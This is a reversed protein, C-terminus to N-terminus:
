LRTLYPAFGPSWATVADHTILYAEYGPRTGIWELGEIGMVFVATAYADARGLDNGVVTASALETSPKGTRPDFIHAGREYTASTAVGLPGTAEIVLALADPLDPHRIGIRWPRNESIEGRIVIDGGGNICFNHCGMSELIHAAEEISWGKVFGSPDLHSGNAAEVSAIDFIGGTDLRLRECERIVSRVEESTESLSLEGRGLASIQSSHIYTSFTEDVHHLWSVVKTIMDGTCAQDRVDISVATGMVHEIHHRGTRTEIM